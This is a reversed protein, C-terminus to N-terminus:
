GTPLSESLVPTRAALPTRAQDARQAARRILGSSLFAEIVRPDFQRGSFRRLERGVKEISLAERYPRDSLMADVTDAVM